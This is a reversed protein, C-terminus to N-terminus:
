AFLGHMYWSPQRAERGYLGHRFLWFRYGTQDEVRFYDRSYGGRGERWWECAIREPGNSKTVEYQVKRWRFRIPPGDPVEAIVDVPEPREFLLLPRTLPLNPPINHALNLAPAATLPQPFAMPLIFGNACPKHEVVPVINFRREPIHTDVPQYAAVRGAGLRTSLRDLLHEVGEQRGGPAVLDGQPEDFRDSRLIGLRIVDFGFGADWDDHLAALRDDFLAAMRAADRLPNASRVSLSLVEGDVRFLRVECQRMGQGRKELMPVLRAALLAIIRKIDDEYVIPDAFRREAVLEAVPMIPSLVEDERGLAQDLRLLAEKGFRAALPARPLTAICGITRFGVRNLERVQDASLRLAALPLSLITERDTEEPAHRSGYRALAWAAGATDAIAAAVSFGQGTLRSRLDDLLAQEGGFLHACGSINLFLGDEGSLAVLPTYRGCWDAIQRLLSATRGPDDPISELEPVLARADGLPMDVHIGLREMGAEHALIRVANRCPAVIAIPPNEPRRGLRWSKGWKQRAVRDM